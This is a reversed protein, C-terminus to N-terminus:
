DELDSKSQAQPSSETPYLRNTIGIENRLSDAVASLLSGHQDKWGFRGARKRGPAELVPVWVVEGAIRGGSSGPQERAISILTSDDIAEVFGDGLLNISLRLSRVNETAPLHEQFGPDVAQTHVLSGGHAEVFKGSQFDRHGARLVTVRSSGGSIPSQHCEVCSTANYVPGLGSTVTKRQGFVLRDLEHTAQDVLGNASNDSRHHLKEAPAHAGSIVLLLVALGVVILSSKIRDCRPM